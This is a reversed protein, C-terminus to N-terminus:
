GGFIIGWVEYVSFTLGNIHLAVWVGLLAAGLLLSVYGNSIRPRRFTGWPTPFGLTKGSVDDTGDVKEIFSRGIYLNIPAKFCVINVLMGSLPYLLVDAGLLLGYGMFISATVSEWLHLYEKMGWLWMFCFGLAPVVVVLLRWDHTVFYPYIFTSLVLLISWADHKVTKGAYYAGNKSGSLFRTLAYFFLHIM